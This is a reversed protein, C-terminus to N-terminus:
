DEKKIISEGAIIAMDNTAYQQLALKVATILDTRTSYNQLYCVFYDKFIDNNDSITYQLFNIANIDSVAYNLIDYFKIDMVSINDMVLSLYSHIIGLHQNNYMKKSYNNTTDKSISPAIQKYLEDQNRVIFVTFFNIITSSFNAVLIDYLYYAITYTDTDENPTYTLNFYECLINIIEQYTQERVEMTRQKQSYDELGNIITQFNQEIANLGPLGINYPRFRMNISDRIVDIIYQTEFNGLIQSLMNDSNINTIIEGNTSNYQM